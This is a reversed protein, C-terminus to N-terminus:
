GDLAGEAGGVTDKFGDSEGVSCEDETGVSFTVKEVIGDSERESPGM